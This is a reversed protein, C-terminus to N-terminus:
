DGKGSFDTVDRFLIIQLLCIVVGEKGHRLGDDTITNFELTKLRRTKHYSLIYKRGVTLRRFMEPDIDQLFAVGELIIQMQKPPAFIICSGVASRKYAGTVVLFPGILLNGIKFFPYFLFFILGRYIKNLLPMNGWNSEEYTLGAQGFGM